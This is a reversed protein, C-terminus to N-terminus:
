GVFVPLTERGRVTSTPAMRINDYDIEWDPFRNLVEQLAFAARWGPSRRVSASISASGSLLTSGKAADRTSGIPNRGASQTM